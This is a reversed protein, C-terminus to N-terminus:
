ALVWIWHSKPSSSEPLPLTYNTCLVDAQFAVITEQSRSLGPGWSKEQSSEDVYSEQDEFEVKEENLPIEESM